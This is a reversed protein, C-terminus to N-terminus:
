IRAVYVAGVSTGETIPNDFEIVHSEASRFVRDLRQTFFAEPRGDAWMAFVGGPKLHRAMEALGEETYFHTNSQHLVNTPTHDIDLLIADLQREPAHRMLAFFDAQMLRCRPDENLTKGLPVLESQHWGIVPQLFDVVTLSAVRPDKLAEVATYGLGLGGVVVDLDDREVAALGLISLQSEAEHFLSTMLFDEGLKVEYIDTDGFLPMRRRRLMLDGIPTRQFDLQEYLFGM